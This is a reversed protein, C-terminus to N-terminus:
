PARRYLQFTGEEYPIWTWDEQDVQEPDEEDLHEITFDGTWSLGDYEGTFLLRSTKGDLESLSRAGGCTLVQNVLQDCGMWAGNDAGWALIANGSDESSPDLRAFLAHTGHLGSLSGRFPWEEKPSCAILVVPILLVAWMKKMRAM